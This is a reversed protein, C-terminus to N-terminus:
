VKSLKHLSVYGLLWSYDDLGPESCMSRWQFAPNEETSIVIYLLCLFRKRQFEVYNYVTMSISKARDSNCNVADLSVNGANLSFWSSLRSFKIIIGVTMSISKVRDINCSCVCVFSVNGRCSVM